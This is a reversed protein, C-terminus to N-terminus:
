ILRADEALVCGLNTRALLQQPISFLVTQLWGKPLNATNNPAHM